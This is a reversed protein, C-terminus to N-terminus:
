LSAHLLVECFLINSGETSMRWQTDSVYRVDVEMDYTGYKMWKSTEMWNHKVIWEIIYWTCMEFSHLYINAMLM